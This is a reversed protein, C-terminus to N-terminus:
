LPFCLSVCSLDLSGTHLSDVLQLWSSTGDSSSVVQLLMVASVSTGWVVEAGGSANSGFVLSVPLYSTSRSLLKPQTILQATLGYGEIVAAAPGPWDTSDSAYANGHCAPWPSDQALLPHSSASTVTTGIAFASCFILRRRRNAMRVPLSSNMLM